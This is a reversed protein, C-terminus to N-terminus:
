PVRRPDGPWFVGRHDLDPSTPARGLDVDDGGPPARRRLGLGAPGRATRPARDCILVQGRLPPRRHQMLGLRGPPHSVQCQRGAGPRRRQAGRANGPYEAASYGNREGAARGAWPSGALARLQARAVAAPPPQLAAPRADRQPYVKAARRRIVMVLPSPPVYVAEVPALEHESPPVDGAAVEDLQGGLEPGRM